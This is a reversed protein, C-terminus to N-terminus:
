RRITRTLAFRSLRGLASRGQGDVDDSGGSGGGSGPIRRLRRDVASSIAPDLAWGIAALEGAATGIRRPRHVLASAVLAAADEPQLSAM